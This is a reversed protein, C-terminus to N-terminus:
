KDRKQPRAVMQIASQQTAFVLMEQINVHAPRDLSWLVCEAIDAAVLPSMGEYVSKARQADRFRVLSFETEVLGPSINTVRINKGHLDMRLGETLARVAFKTACYVNGSPYVWHGAVSGLNVIHGSERKAMFPAIFRTMYLLGKVNTDIMEEWDDIHGEHLPEAGRALGANNVLIDVKRLLNRHSAFIRTCAARQSVDFNLAEVEVLFERRLRKALSELRSKRRGTIILNVDKKALGLAIAEGIGSTAGTILAWKRPTKTPGLNSKQVSKQLKSSKAM